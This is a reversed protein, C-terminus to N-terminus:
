WEFPRAENDKDIKVKRGMDEHSIDNLRYYRLTAMYAIATKCADTAESNFGDNEMWDMVTQGVIRAVERQVTEVFHQVREFDANAYFSGTLFRLQDSSTILM